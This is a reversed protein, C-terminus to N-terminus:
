DEKRDLEQNIWDLQDKLVERQEELDQKRDSAGVYFSNGLGRRFGIGMGLRGAPRSVRCFGLGRGTLPGRGMPGTGDRGPM